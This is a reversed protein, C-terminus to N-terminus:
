KTRSIVVGNEFLVKFVGKTTYFVVEYIERGDPNDVFGDKFDLIIDNKYYEDGHFVHFAHSLHGDPANHMDRMQPFYDEVTKEEGETWVDIIECGETMVAVFDGKDTDLFVRVSKEGNIEGLQLYEDKIIKAGDFKPNKGMEACAAVQFPETGAVPINPWHIQQGNEMGDPVTYDPKPKATPENRNVTPVSCLIQETATDGDDSVATRKEEPNNVLIDTQTKPQTPVQGIDNQIGFVQATAEATPQTTETPKEAEKSCAVLAAAIAFVILICTFKKM